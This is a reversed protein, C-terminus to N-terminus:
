ARGHQLSMLTVSGQFLGFGGLAVVQTREERPLPWGHEHTSYGMCVWACVRAHAWHMQTHAWCVHVHVCVLM